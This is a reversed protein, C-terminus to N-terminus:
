QIVVRNQLSWLLDKTSQRSIPKAKVTRPRTEKRKCKPCIRPGMEYYERLAKAAPDYNQEAIRYAMGKTILPFADATKQWSHSEAHHKKLKRALQRRNM